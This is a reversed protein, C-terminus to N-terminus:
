HLIDVRFTTCFNNTKTVFSTGNHVQVSCQGIFLTDQRQTQKHKHKIDTGETPVTRGRVTRISVLCSGRTASRRYSTDQSDAPELGGATIVHYLPLLCSRRTLTLVQCCIFLKRVVSTPKYKM